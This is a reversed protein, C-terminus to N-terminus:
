FAHLLGEGEGEGKIEANTNQEHQESLRFNFNVNKDANQTFPTPLDCNITKDNEDEYEHDDGDDEDDEDYDYEDDIDDEEYDDYDTDNRINEYITKSAVNSQHAPYLDGNPRLSLSSSSISRIHRPTITITAGSKTTIAPTTTATTPTLTMATHSSHSSMELHGSKTTRRYKIKHKFVKIICFRRCKKDFKDFLKSYLKDFCNYSLLICFYNTFIDLLCAVALISSAIELILTRGDKNQNDHLAYFCVLM